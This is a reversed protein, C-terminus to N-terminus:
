PTRGESTTEQLWAYTRRLGERLPVSAEYGCLDHLKETSPCVRSPADILHARSSQEAVLPDGGLGGLEQIIGALAKITVEERGNGVNYAEGMAGRLLVNWFAVTGDTLYCYSRFDGGASMMRIRDGRLVTRFFDAMVRGDDLSIGPGYVIFPRVIKVPLAYQRAFAACLAEGYRKAETYCSRPGLSSTSGFYDETTPIRDPPPNGYLEGSSFYLVGRAQQEVAVDLLWRLGVANVDLTEVPHSTFYLPSSRGAAHIIYDFKQDIAMPQVADHVIFQVDSRGLLSRLHPYTSPPRRVMGVVKAETTVGADNAAAVTHCLYHALMGGAGTVLVTRGSLEPLVTVLRSVIEAMDRRVVDSSAGAPESPVGTAGPESGM